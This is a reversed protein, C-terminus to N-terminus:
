TAVFRYKNMRKNRGERGQDRVRLKLRAKIGAKNGYSTATCEELPYVINQDHVVLRVHDDMLYVTGHVGQWSYM